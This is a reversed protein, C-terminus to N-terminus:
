SAEEGTSPPVIADLKEIFEALRDDIALASDQAKTRLDALSSAVQMLAEELASVRAALDQGAMSVIPPALAVVETAESEPIQVIESAEADATETEGAAEAAAVDVVEEVQVPTAAELASYDILGQSPAAPQSTADEAPTEEAKIGERLQAQYELLRQVIDDHVILPAEEQREEQTADAPM